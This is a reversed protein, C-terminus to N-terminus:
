PICIDNHGGGAHSHECRLGTPCSGGQPCRLACIGGGSQNPLCVRESACAGESCASVSKLCIAGLTFSICTLGEACFAASTLTGSTPPLCSADEPASGKPLCGGVGGSLEVCRGKEGDCASVKPDCKPLCFGYPAGRLLAVCSSQDDCL